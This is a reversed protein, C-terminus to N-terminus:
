LEGLETEKFEWTGLCSLDQALREQSVMSSLSNFYDALQQSSCSSETVLHLFNNALRSSWFTESYGGANPGAENLALGNVTIVRPVPYRVWSNLKKGWENIQEMSVQNNGEIPPPTNPTNESVPTTSGPSRQIFYFGGVVIIALVIILRGAGIFGKQKNM